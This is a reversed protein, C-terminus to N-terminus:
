VKYKIAERDFAGVVRDLGVCFAHSPYQQKMLGVMEDPSKNQQVLCVIMNVLTDPIPVEPHDRLCEQLKGEAGAFDGKQIMACAMLNLLVASPGYQETLSNMGHMADAAGTSGVALHIYVASLQTLVADEDAQRLLSLQQKALDLRDMKLYIQLVLGIHEMTTGLHVCQLAEKTQGAHLLVQAATLQVSPEQSSAVMSKLQDVISEQAAENGEAAHYQGKLQLADLAPISYFFYHYFSFYLFDLM